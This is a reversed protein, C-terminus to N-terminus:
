PERGQAIEEHIAMSIEKLVKLTKPAVPPTKVVPLTIRPVEGSVDIEVTHYPCPLPHGCLIGPVDRDPRQCTETM